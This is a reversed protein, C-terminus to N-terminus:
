FIGKSTIRLSFLTSSVHMCREKCNKLFFSLKRKIKFDFQEYKMDNLLQQDFSIKLAHRKLTVMDANNYRYILMAKSKKM